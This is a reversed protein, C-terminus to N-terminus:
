KTWTMYNIKWRQRTASLNAWMEPTAKEVGQVLLRKVDALHFTKNNAKVHGKVVAWALEIPNLDCHYPPLRLITRGTTKAFEDIVYKDYNPKIRRVEDLLQWKLANDPMRIGKSTLWERIQTKKWSTVPCREQKASHYPANDMVIVANPKLYPVIHKFWEFFHAANMEDHYDASKTKSEFCLLGNEVFGDESGIHLVILRKGKATPTSPGRERANSASAITNDVWVRQQTDGANVWTEDLYYIPRGAARFERIKTIFTRRWRIIDEREILASNRQRQVYKFNMKKLLRQLTSQSLIPLNEDRQIAALVRPVTPLERREWFAHVHKRIAGIEDESMKQMIDPRVRKKSPSTVTGTTKFEKLTEVVTRYGVGCTNGVLKIIEKYKM